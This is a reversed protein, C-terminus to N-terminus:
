RHHWLRSTRSGDGALARHVAPPDGRRTFESLCSCVRNPFLAPPLPGAAERDGPMGILVLGIESRDFLDRLQELSPVKLRDAEDVLILRAPALRPRPAVRAMESDPPTSPADDDPDRPAFWDMELFRENQQRREEAWRAQAAIKEARRRPEERIGHLKNCLRAVDSEVARPSNVIEPTYFVTDAGNFAALAQDDAHWAVPLSEFRDWAAYSLRWILRETQRSKSASPHHLEM